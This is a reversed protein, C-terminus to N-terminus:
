SGFKKILELRFTAELVRKRYTRPKSELAIRGGAVWYSPSSGKLSERPIWCLGDDGTFSDLWAACRKFWPHTRASKFRAFVEMYRMLVAMQEYRPNLKWGPVHVSWGMAYYRRPAAKITGFGPKIREQYDSSLILAVMKEAKRKSSVDTLGIWSNLDHIMPAAIGRRTDYLEPNVMQNKGKWVGPMDTPDSVYFTAPDFKKSFVVLNDLREEVHERVFSQNGYGLLTSSGSILSAIFGGFTGDSKKIMELQKFYPKLRKDLPVIERRIGLDHLEGCINEFAYDFSSHLWNFRCDGTLLDLNKVVQPWVSLEQKTVTEPKKRGLLEREVRWRIPASAEALLIEINREM